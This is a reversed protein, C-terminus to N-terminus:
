GVAEYIRTFHRVLGSLRSVIPIRQFAQVIRSKAIRPQIQKRYVVILLRGLVFVPLWAGLGVVLGGAVLTDNFRLLAGVATSELAGFPAALAPLTLLWWGVRDLLGDALPALPTLLLLAVLFIGLNLKVVAALVFLVVWLLNGGPLLALLVAMALAAAVEGPRRNANLSAIIRAFFVIM